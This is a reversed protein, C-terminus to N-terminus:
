KIPATKDWNRQAEDTNQNVLWNELRVIVNTSVRLFNIDM